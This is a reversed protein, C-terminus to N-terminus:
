YTQSHTIDVYQPKGPPGYTFFRGALAPSSLFTPKIGPNPLDGPSPFPLGNQLYEQRSFEMSLPAQYTVTWESMISHCLAHVCVCVIDGITHRVSYWYFMCFWYVTGPDVLAKIEAESEIQEKRSETLVIQHHPDNRQGKLFLTAGLKTFLYKGMLSIPCDPVWMFSHVFLQGNINCLLPELFTHEQRKGSLGM